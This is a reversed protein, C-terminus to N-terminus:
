KAAVALSKCYDDYLAGETQALRASAVAVGIKEDTALKRAKVIFAHDGGAGASAEAGGNAAAAIKALAPNDPLAALIEETGDPDAAYAKEFHAVLKANQPAIAGRKAHVAVAAKAQATTVKGANAEIKDLRTVVPALAAQVAQTITADAAPKTAASAKTELATIKEALPNTAATILEKFENKEAETMKTEQNPDGRRATVPQNGQFAAQNVLGGLNTGLGLFEHTQPHILWEPSFRTFTRERVASAGSATLHTVARIGGTRPDDGGWYLRKPHGSAAANEHNFDIFPEDGEGREFSALLDAFAAEVKAALAATVEVQIERPEGAVFPTIARRGPPMWQIDTVVEGPKPAVVASANRAHATLHRTM